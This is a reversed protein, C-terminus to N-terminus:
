LAGLGDSRRRPASRENRILSRPHIPRSPGGPDDSSNEGPPRAAHPLAADGRPPPRRAPTTAERATTAEPRDRRGPQLDLGLVDAIAAVTFFTATPITGTRDQPPHGALHRRAPSRPPARRGRARQLAQGLAAGRQREDATLPARVLSVLGPIVIGPMTTSLDSSSIASIRSAPRTTAWIRAATAAAARGSDAQVVEVRQGHFDEGVVAGRWREEAVVRGPRGRRVRPDDAEGDVLRDHVPDRVAAGQALPVDQRDVAACAEVAIVTVRGDGDADALDVGIGAPEDVGRGRCEGGADRGSPRAGPHAVDRVGDLGPGLRRSRAVAPSPPWPM